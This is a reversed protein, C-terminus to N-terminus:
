GDVDMLLMRRSRGVRSMVVSAVNGLSVLASIGTDMLEGLVMSAPSSTRWVDAIFMVSCGHSSLVSFTSLNSAVNDLDALSMLEVLDM